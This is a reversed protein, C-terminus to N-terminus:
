VQPLAFSLYNVEVLYYSSATTCYCSKLVFRVLEAIAKM